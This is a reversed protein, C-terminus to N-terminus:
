REFVVSDLAVRIQELLYGSMFHQHADAVIDWKGFERVAKFSSQSVNEIEMILGNSYKILIKQPSAVVEVINSNVEEIHHSVWKVQDANLEITNASCTTNIVILAIFVLYKM